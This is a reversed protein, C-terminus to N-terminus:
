DQKPTVEDLKAGFENMLLMPLEQGIITQQAESVRNSHEREQKQKLTENGNAGKEVVLEIRQNTMEHLIAELNTRNEPRDMAVSNAAPADVIITNGSRSKFSLNLAFLKTPGKLNSANELFELWDESTQIDRAPTSPPEKPSEPEPSSM